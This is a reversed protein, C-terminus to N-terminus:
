NFAMKVAIQLDGRKVQLKKSTMNKKGKQEKKFAVLRNMSRSTEKLLLLEIMFTILKLHRRRASKPCYDDSGKRGTLHGACVCNPGAVTFFVKFHIM